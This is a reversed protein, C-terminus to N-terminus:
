DRAGPPALEALRQVFAQPQRPQLLLDYGATTPLYVLRTGGVTAVFARHLNRLRFWGSHFGPLSAGNTKLVPKLETREGLDVIRAQSLQLERWGLRRSYFSTTIALGDSDLTVAHRRMARAILWHIALTLALIGALILANTLLPSGGILQKPGPDDGAYAIAGAAIAVPLAVLLLFLWLRSTPSPPQLQWAPTTDM